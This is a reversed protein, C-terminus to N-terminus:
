RTYLLDRLVLINAMCCLCGPDQCWLIESYLLNKQGRTLLLWCRTPTMLVPDIQRQTTQFDAINLLVQLYLSMQLPRGRM